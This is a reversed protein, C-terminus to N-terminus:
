SEKNGDMDELLDKEWPGHFAIMIVHMLRENHHMEEAM